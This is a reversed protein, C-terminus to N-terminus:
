VFPFRSRWLSTLSVQAFNTTDRVFQRHLWRTKLARKVKRAYLRLAQSWTLDDSCGRRTIDLVAALLAVLGAAPSNLM